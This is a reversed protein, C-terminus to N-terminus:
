HCPMTHWNWGSGCYIIVNNLNWFGEHKLTQMFYTTKVNISDFLLRNNRFFYVTEKEFKCFISLFNVCNSIILHNCHDCRTKWNQTFIM